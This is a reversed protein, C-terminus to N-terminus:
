KKANKVACALGDQQMCAREIQQQGMPNNTAINMLGAIGCDRASGSNCKSTLEMTEPGPMVPRNGGFLVKTAACSMKDNRMCGMEFARKAADKNGGFGLEMRGQDFCAQMNGRWCGRQYMMKALIANKPADKGVESLMGLDVCAQAQTGDCARKLFTVAKPVDKTAGAGDLYMKGATGCALDNGGECGKTLLSLAKGEDKTVGDGTRYQTGLVGCALADADGCGKEFNKAAAAADKAGGRGQMMLVGLNTCSKTDSGECGKTLLERAKKEDRSAGGGGGVYLAGASGCSPANGKGCQTVCENADKPNCLYAAASKPETCKGEAMVLGKPCTSEVAVVDNGAPKTEVPAAPPAGAAVVPKPIIGKLELRIFAQCQSPAKKDDPTAKACDAIDGDKNQVNKESTSAGSATAGFMQAASKVQGKTGTQMVFAGVMAGKVFHTAGDCEGKLEDAQVKAWTTKVKGVMIMAVDLTSGRAMEASISGAIGIGGLPLNAKVEDANNLKVVQEKRSMGLFGYTGDVKCDKLLKFGKCSYSVIAVNEKMLLELDGRQEPKWDVVLPEGGTDAERCPGEGIGEAATAEKPRVAAGVGGAGCGDLATFAGLALVLCSLVSSRRGNM